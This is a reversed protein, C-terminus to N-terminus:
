KWKQRCGSISCRAGESDLFWRDHPALVMHWFSINACRYIAPTGGCVFIQTRRGLVHVVARAFFALGGGGGGRQQHQQGGVDATPRKLGFLPAPRSPPLHLPASPCVICKRWCLVFAGRLRSYTLLLHSQPPPNFQLFVWGGSAAGYNLFVVFFVRRRPHHLSFCPCFFVTQSMATLNQQSSKITPTLPWARSLRFIRKVQFLTLCCDGYTDTNTRVLQFCRSPREIGCIDTHTHTPQICVCKDSM